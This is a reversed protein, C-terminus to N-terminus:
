RCEAPAYKALLSGAAHVAIVRTDAVNNTSSSCAWDISGSEGAALAVELTKIGGATRVNPSFTLTDEGTKIGVSANNYTVTLLGSAGDMAVSNVYKSTVPNATWNKATDILDNTSSVETAIALKAAM